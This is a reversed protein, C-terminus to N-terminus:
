LLLAVPAVPGAPIAAETTTPVVSVPSGPVAAITVLLPVASFTTRLKTIGRPAVPAVPEM